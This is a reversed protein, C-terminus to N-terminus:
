KKHITILVCGFYKRQKLFGDLSEGYLDPGTSNRYTNYGTFRGDKYQLAVFHAGLKWKSKWHYFLKSKIPDNESDEKPFTQAEEQEWTLASERVLDYAERHYFHLKGVTIQGCIAQAELMQM